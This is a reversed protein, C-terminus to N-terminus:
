SKLRGVPIGAGINVMGPGFYPKGFPLIIPEEFPRFPVMAAIEDLRRRVEEPLPGAEAFRASAELHAANKAGVLACSIDPNTLTFRLSLEPLSLGSEDLLRYLALMQEQRPKSLWAPKEAVERDFRRGLGGQGYVSGVVIGMGLGAATPLLEHVAERFLANYNFATLLVDFSGGAVFHTLEAVTTGGLGTFRVVGEARLRELLELVPGQRNQPDTWWPYMQPRDPEHVMLIDITDRGLLRRSEDVSGRLAVRDRPDFPQPRGGLKTSVILERGKGGIRRLAEGLVKESDGYAPATDVYNIGLDVAAELARVTEELGGGLSSTFLGGLSVESVRLGTRGLTRRHLAMTRRYM